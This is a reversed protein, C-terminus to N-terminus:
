WRGAIGVIRAAIACMRAVIASTKAAIACMRAGTARWQKAGTPQDPASLLDVLDQRDAIDERRDRVDERRDAVDERRDRVDERLDRVHRGRPSADAFVPLLLSIALAMTLHTANM